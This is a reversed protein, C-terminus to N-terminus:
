IMTKRYTGLTGITGFILEKIKSNESIKAEYRAMDLIFLGTMKDGVTIFQGMGDEEASEAVM